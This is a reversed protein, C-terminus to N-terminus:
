QLKAYEAQAQKLIPIESDAGKWLTLFDQYAAKAKASVGEMAYARAIQVHALAGVIDNLVLGRHDLIKQFELAAERGQHAALYAEGRVYAPYLAGQGLEYPLAPKLREVAEASNGNNLELRARLTPLLAFQMVTDQPFDRALERELSEAASDGAYALAYAALYRGYRYGPHKLALAAHRRAAEVKGAMAERLALASYDNAATESGESLAASNAARVVMENAHAFRGSYAATDADMIWLADEVGPKGSALSVQRTM